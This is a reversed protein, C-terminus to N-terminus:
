SRTATVTTRSAWPRLGSTPPSSCKECRSTRSPSERGSATPTTVVINRGAAVHVYAEAQHSYLETAGRRRLADVLRPTLGDPYPAYRAPIAPLRRVATVVEDPTDPRDLAEGPALVQLAGQLAVEKKERTRLAAPAAFDHTAM